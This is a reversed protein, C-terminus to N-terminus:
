SCMGVVRSCHYQAVILNSLCNLSRCCILLVDSLFVPLPVGEEPQFPIPVVEVVLVCCLVPPPNLLVFVGSSISLYLFVHSYQLFNPCVLSFQLLLNPNHMFHPFSLCMALSQLSFVITLVISCTM